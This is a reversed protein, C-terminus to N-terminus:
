TAFLAEIVTKQKKQLTLSNTSIYVRVAKVNGVAIHFGSPSTVKCNAKMSLFLITENQALTSQWSNICCQAYKYCSRVKYLRVFYFELKGNNNKQQIVGPQKQLYTSRM